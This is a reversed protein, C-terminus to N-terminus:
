TGIHNEITSEGLARKLKRVTFGDFGPIVFDAMELTEPDGIGVCRMGANRAAEVGAIADEFVVCNEPLVGLWEASKLFVEPNPKAETISNGDVVADFVGSLQIRDLIMSSNKSASGLAIKIGTNRLE